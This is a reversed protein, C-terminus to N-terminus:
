NVAPAKGLLEARLADTLAQDEPSWFHANAIFGRWPSLVSGGIIWDVHDVLNPSANYIMDRAHAEELWLRFFYDDYRNDAVMWRHEQRHRADTEFWLAFARAWEDPIRVCQFSHWCDAMHVRGTQRPDDTFNVNCFGYVCGQKELTRCREVFDHAILVDDQLHWTGEDGEGTVSAFAEVCSRLNGHGETDNWIIIDDDTLGQAKLSPVLYGDVYWMRKPYAHLMVKM